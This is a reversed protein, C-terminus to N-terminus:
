LLLLITLLESCQIPAAVTSKYKCNNAKRLKDKQKESTYKSERVRVRGLTNKGSHRGMSEKQSVLFLASSVM